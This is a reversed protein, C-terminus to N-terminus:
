VWRLKEALGIIHQKNEEENTSVACEGDGWLVIIRGRYSIAVDKPMGLEQVLVRSAKDIMQRVNNQTERTYKLSIVEDVTYVSKVPPEVFGRIVDSLDILEDLRAEVEETYSPSKIQANPMNTM